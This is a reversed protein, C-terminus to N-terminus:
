ENSAGRLMSRDIQKEQMQNFQQQRRVGERLKESESPLYTGVDELEKTLVKIPFPFRKSKVMLTDGSSHKGVVVVTDPNIPVEYVDLVEPKHVTIEQPGSTSFINNHWM